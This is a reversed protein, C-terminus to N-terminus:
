NHTRLLLSKHMEVAPFCTTFILNSCKLSLFVVIDEVNNILYLNLPYWQMDLMAMNAHDCPPDSSIVSVTGKVYM